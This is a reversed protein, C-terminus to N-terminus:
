QIKIKPPKAVPTVPLNAVVNRTTDDIVLATCVLAAKKEQAIVRAVGVTAATDGAPCTGTVVFNSGGQDTTFVDADGPTTDEVGTECEPASPAGGSDFVQVAWNVEKTGVNLCIIQTEQADATDRRVGNILYLVTYGSFDIAGPGSGDPKSLPGQALAPAALFLAFLPYALRRLVRLLSMSM